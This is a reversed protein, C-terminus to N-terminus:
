SGRRSNALSIASGFRISFRHSEMPWSKPRIEARPHVITERSNRGRFGSLFDPNGVASATTHWVLNWIHSKESRSSYYYLAVAPARVIARSLSLRRERPTARVVFSRSRTAGQCLERCRANKEKNKRRKKKSRSPSACDYRSRSYNGRSYSYM